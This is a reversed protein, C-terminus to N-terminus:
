GEEMLWCHSLDALGNQSLLITRGLAEFLEAPDTLPEADFGVREHM